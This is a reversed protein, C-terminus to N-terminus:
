HDKIRMGPIDQPAAIVKERNIEYYPIGARRKKASNLAGDRLPADARLSVGEAAGFIGQVALIQEAARSSRRQHPLIEVTQALGISAVPRSCKMTDYM